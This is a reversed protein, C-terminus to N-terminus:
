TYHMKKTESIVLGTRYSGPGDSAGLRPHGCGLHDALDALVLPLAGADECPLDPITQKLLADAGVVVYRAHTNQEIKTYNKSTEIKNRDTPRRLHKKRM